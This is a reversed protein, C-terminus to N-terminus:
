VDLVRIGEVTGPPARPGAREPAVVMDTLLKPPAAGRRRTTGFPRNGGAHVVRRTHGDNREPPNNLVLVYGASQCSM